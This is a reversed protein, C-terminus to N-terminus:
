VHDKRFENEGGLKEEWIEVGYEMVNQILYRFLNWRRRFDNRCIREGLGWVKKAALRGKRVLEKLHKEFNGNSSIMFDLYKFVQVEEIGKKNWIWKEKKERGKRNFVLIKSKDTNLEMRRDKLFVKLTLMMDMM